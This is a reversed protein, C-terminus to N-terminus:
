EHEAVSGQEVGVDIQTVNVLPVPVMCDSHKRDQSFSLSHRVPYKQRESPPPPPSDIHKGRQSDVGPEQPSSVHLGVVWRHM